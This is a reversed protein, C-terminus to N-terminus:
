PEYNQNSIGAGLAARGFSVRGINVARFNRALGRSGFALGTPTIPGGIWGGVIGSVGNTVIGTGTIKEGKISQTAVYQAINAAAGLAKPAVSAVLKDGVFPAVAGAAFGVVGAVAVDTAKISGGGALQGVVNGAMNTVSGIAGMQLANGVTYGTVAGASAMGMTGGIVAGAAAGTIIAAGNINTTMAHQIDMGSQTNQYVQVGYAVGAGIAGGVLACVLLCHGTPDGAGVPNNNVYSYRNLEQPNGAAGKEGWAKTAVADNPTVTLSGASPVISDASVFRGIGPDYYRANYFLLGTDDRYQGTFSRRTVSVTGTLRTGWADDYQRSLGGGSANTSASSSSAALPRPGEREGSAPAAGRWVM